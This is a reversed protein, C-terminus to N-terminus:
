ANKVFREPVMNESVPTPWPQDVVVDVQATNMDTLPLMAKKEKASLSSVYQVAQVASFLGMSVLFAALVKDNTKM